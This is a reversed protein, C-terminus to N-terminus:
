EPSSLEQFNSQQFSLQGEALGLMLAFIVIEKPAFITYDM